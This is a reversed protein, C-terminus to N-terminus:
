FIGLVVIVLAIIVVAAITTTWLRRSLTEQIENMRAVSRDTSEKQAEILEDLQREIRNLDVSSLYETVTTLAADATSLSDGLTGTAERIEASLEQLTQAAAQSSQLSAANLDDTQVLSKLRDKLKEIVDASNQFRAVIEEVNYDSPSNM